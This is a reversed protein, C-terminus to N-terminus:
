LVARTSKDIEKYFCMNNTNMQIAEVKDLCNLHTVVVHAKIFFILFLILYAGNLIGQM